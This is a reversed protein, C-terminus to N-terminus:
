RGEGGADVGQAIDAAAAAAGVAGARSGLQARAIRAFRWPAKLAREAARQQVLPLLQPLGEVVGGGVVVVQPSFLNIVSALGAALYEAAEAVLRQALRDGRHFAETVHVATLNEVRGEVLALLGHAQAPEAKVAEQARRALAWGSALAELCGRNGCSCAPGDAQVTLHGIEGASGAAGKLLTGGAIIGGGIGTGVFMGVVESAGRGAGYRWEGYTAAQVDNLVRVPVQLARALTEGLEVDHWRLNPAFRVVGTAHDVQGAVGVGVRELVAGPVQAVTDRICAVVAEMVPGPGRSAETPRRQQARATGASDVAIAQIKTGGLDVGVTLRLPTSGM